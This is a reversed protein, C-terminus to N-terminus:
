KNCIFFIAYTLGCIIVAGLFGMGMTIEGIIFFFMSLLALFIICYLYGPIKKLFNKKTKRKEISNEVVEIKMKSNEMITKKKM